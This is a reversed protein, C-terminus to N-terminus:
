HSLIKTTRILSNKRQIEQFIPRLGVTIKTVQYNM